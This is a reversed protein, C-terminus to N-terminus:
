CAGPTYGLATPPVTYAALLGTNREDHCACLLLPRNPQGISCSFRYVQCFKM